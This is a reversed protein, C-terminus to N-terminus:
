EPVEICEAISDHQVCALKRPVLYCAMCTMTMHRAHSCAQLPCPGCSACLILIQFTWTLIVLVLVERKPNWIVVEKRKCMLDTAALVYTGYAACFARIEILLEGHVAHRGTNLIYAHCPLTRPADTAEGSALIECAAVAIRLTLLFPIKRRKSVEFPGGAHM